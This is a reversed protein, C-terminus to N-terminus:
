CDAFSSVILLHTPLEKVQRKGPIVAVCDKCAQLKEDGILPKIHVAVKVCCDEMTTPSAATEMVNFCCHFYIERRINTKIYLYVFVHMHSCEKKVLGTGKNERRLNFEHVSLHYWLYFLHEWKSDECYAIASITREANKVATKSFSAESANFFIARELPISESSLFSM